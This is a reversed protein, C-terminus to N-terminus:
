LRVEIYFNDVIDRYRNRITADTVGITRAVQTQNRKEDLLISALYVAAAALAQPPKGQAIRTEILLSVLKMALTSVQSSLGLQSTIREVFASPNPPRAAQVGLRSVIRRYAAWVRDKNVGLAKAVEYMSLEHRNIRAAIVIAAAMYEYFNSKRLMGQSYLKRMILAFTEAVRQPLRLRSAISNVESLLQILKEHGKVRLRAQLAALKQSRLDRRKAYIYTTLGGDHVRASLPSGVRSRRVREEGDYARWEPGVDFLQEYFVYGCNTCVLRGEVIKAYLKTLAGCVPCREPLRYV